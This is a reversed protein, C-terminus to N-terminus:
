IPNNTKKINLQILQKYIHSILGKDTMDNVFIKEWETLQRKTKNIKKKDVVMELQLEVYLLFLLFSSLSKRVFILLLYILNHFALVVEILILFIVTVGKHSINNM